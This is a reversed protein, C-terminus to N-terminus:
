AMVKLQHHAVLQDSRNLVGEPALHDREHALVVDIGVQRGLDEDQLGFGRVRVRSEAPLQGLFRGSPNQDPPLRNAPGAVSRDVRRDVIKENKVSGARALLKRRSRRLRARPSREPHPGCRSPADPPM